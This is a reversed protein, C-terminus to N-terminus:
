AAIAGEPAPGPANGGTHQEMLQSIVRDLAEQTYVADGAVGPNLLSALIATFANPIDDPGPSGRHGPVGVPHFLGGLIRFYVFWRNACCVPYLSPLSCIRALPMWLSSELNHM